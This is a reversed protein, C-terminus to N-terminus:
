LVVQYALVEEAEKNLADAHRNLIDLDRQEAEQRELHRM